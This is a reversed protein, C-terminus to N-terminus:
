ELALPTELRKATTSSMCDTLASNIKLLIHTARRKNTCHFPGAKACCKDWELIRIHKPMHLDAAMRSEVSDRAGSRTAPRTAGGFSGSRAM